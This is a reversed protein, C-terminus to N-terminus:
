RLGTREWGTAFVASVNKSKNELKVQSIKVKHYVINKSLVASDGQAQGKHAGAV